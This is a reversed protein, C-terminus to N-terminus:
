ESLLIGQSAGTKVGGRREVGIHEGSRLILLAALEFCQDGVDRIADLVECICHPIDACQSVGGGGRGEHGVEVSEKLVEAVKLLGHDHALNGGGSGPRQAM